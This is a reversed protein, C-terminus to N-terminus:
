KNPKVSKQTKNKAHKAKPPKKLHPPIIGSKAKRNDKQKNKKTWAGTGNKNVVKSDRAGTGVSFKPTKSVLGMKKDKYTHPTTYYHVGPCGKKTRCSTGGLLIAIIVVLVYRIPAIRYPKQKIYPLQKL